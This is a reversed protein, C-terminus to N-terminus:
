NGRAPRGLAAFYNGELLAKNAPKLLNGLQKAAESGVADWMPSALDNTRAEIQNRAMRGQESVSGADDTLGRESLRHIAAAWDDNSWGRSKRLTDPKYGGMSESVVTCEAGGFPEAILLGIHTDGRWERIITILQWLHVLEPNVLSEVNKLQGLAAANGAALPRGDWSLAGVTTEAIGIAETVAQSTLVPDVSENLVRDVGRWRAIQMQSATVSNWVGDMASRVLDPSFNYFTAIVMETPLPGMAATRSAFYGGRGKVGLAEYEESAQPAFYIFAHFLTTIDHLKSVAGRSIM